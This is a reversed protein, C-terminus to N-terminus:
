LEWTVLRLMEFGVEGENEMYSLAIARRSFVTLLRIKEWVVASCLLSDMLQDDEASFDM